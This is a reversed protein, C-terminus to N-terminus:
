IACDHQGSVTYELTLGTKNVMWSPSFLTLHWAGREKRQCSVAVVQRSDKGCSFRVSQVEGGSTDASLEAQWDASSYHM